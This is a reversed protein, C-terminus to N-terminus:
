QTSQLLEILSLLLLLFASNSVLSLPGLLLDVLILFLKFESHFILESVLVFFDVHQSVVEGVEFAAVVLGKGLTLVLEVELLLDDVGELLLQLVELLSDILHLSSTTLGELLLELKEFLLPV